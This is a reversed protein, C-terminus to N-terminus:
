QARWRQMLEDWKARAASLHRVKVHGYGRIDEPIRAIEAAQALNKASLRPLLEEICARYDAMLQRETRREESRGFIDLAGGRLGKMGALVGFVKAQPVVAIGEFGVRLSLDVVAGVVIGGTSRADAFQGPVKRLIVQALAVVGM